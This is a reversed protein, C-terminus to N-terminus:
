KKNKESYYTDLAKKFRLRTSKDHERPVPGIKKWEQQIKKVEEEAARKEDSRGAMIFNEEMALKLQEALNLAKDRGSAVAESATGIIKRFM